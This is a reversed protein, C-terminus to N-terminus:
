IHLRILIATHTRNGAFLGHKGQPMIDKVALLNQLLVENIKNTWLNAKENFIAKAMANIDVQSNLLDTKWASNSKMSSCRKDKHVAHHLGNSDTWAVFCASAIWPSILCWISHVFCINKSPTPPTVGASLVAYLDVATTLPTQATHQDATYLVIVRTLLYIAYQFIDKDMCKTIVLSKFSGAIKWSKLM